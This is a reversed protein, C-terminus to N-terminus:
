REGTSADPTRSHEAQERPQIREARPKGTALGGRDWSNSLVRKKQLTLKGEKWWGEVVKREREREREGERNIWDYNETKM